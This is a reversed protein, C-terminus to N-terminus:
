LKFHFKLIDNLKTKKRKGAASFSIIELKPNFEALFQRCAGCPLEPRKSDTLIYLKKFDTDGEEVACGAAVREACLTLSFSANEINVGFYKKRKRTVLCAAVRFKSYPSYSKKIRKKLEELIEKEKM